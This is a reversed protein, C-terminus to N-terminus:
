QGAETLMARLMNCLNFMTHDNYYNNLEILEISDILTKKREETIQWCPVMQDPGVIHDGISIKGDVGPPRANVLIADLSRQAEAHADVDVRNLYDEYTEDDPYWSHGHSVKNREYANQLFAQELVKIRAAQQDIVDLRARIRIEAQELDEKLKKIQTAMEDREKAIRTLDNNLDRAAMEFARLREIEAAQQAVTNFLRDREARLIEITNDAIKKAAAESPSM